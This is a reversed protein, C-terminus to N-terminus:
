AAHKIASVTQLDATCVIFKRNRCVILSYYDM